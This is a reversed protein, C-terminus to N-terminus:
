CPTSVLRPGSCWGPDIGVLLQSVQLFCLLFAPLYGPTCSRGGVPQTFSGLLTLTGVAAMIFGPILAWSYKHNIFYITLFPIAIAFMFGAGIVEGPLRDGFIIVVGFLFCALAPILAWGTRAFILPSVLWSHSPSPESSRHLSGPKRTVPIGLGFCVGDIGPFRLRSLALGLFAARRDLYRIFFVLALGGFALMWFQPTFQGVYGQQQALTLGAALILLIGWFINDYRNRM